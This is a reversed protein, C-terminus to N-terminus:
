GQKRDLLVSLLMGAGFAAAIMPATHNRFQHRWDTALKVKRALERLNQQLEDRKAEIHREIQDSTEGM